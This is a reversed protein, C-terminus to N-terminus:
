VEVAKESGGITQVRTQWRWTSVTCDGMAAASDVGTCRVVGHVRGTWDWGRPGSKIIQGRNGKADDGGIKGWVRGEGVGGDGDREEVEVEGEGVM